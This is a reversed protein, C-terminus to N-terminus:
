RGGDQPRPCQRPSDPSAQWAPRAPTRAATPPSDSGGGTGLVARLQGALTRTNVPKTLYGNCGAARAKAEDGKMAFATMAVLPLDCTSPDARLRQCFELGTMGPLAIDVLVLDPRREGILQLAEEGSECTRVEFGGDTLVCRALKLNTPHDDVILVSPRM